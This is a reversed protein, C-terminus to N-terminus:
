SQGKKGYAMGLDLATTNLQDLIRDDYQHESDDDKGQSIIKINMNEDEAKVHVVYEDGVRDVSVSTGDPAEIVLFTDDKEKGLSRIDDSTVYGYEKYENSNVLEEIKQQM